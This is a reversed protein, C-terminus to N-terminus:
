RNTVVNRPPLNHFFRLIYHKNWWEEKWKRAREEEMLNKEENIESDDFVLKKKKDIDFKIKVYLHLLILVPILLISLIMRTIYECNSEEEIM